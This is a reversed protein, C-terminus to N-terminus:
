NDNKDLEDLSLTTVPIIPLTRAVIDANGFELWEKWDAALDAEEFAAIPVLYAFTIQEEHPIEIYRGKKYNAKM